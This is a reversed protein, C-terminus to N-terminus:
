PTFDVTADTDRDSLTVFRSDVFLGSSFTTLEAYIFRNPMRDYFVRGIECPVPFYSQREFNSADGFTLELADIGLGECLEATAPEGYFTWSLRVSIIQNAPLCENTRTCLQSGCQADSDCYAPYAEISCGSM